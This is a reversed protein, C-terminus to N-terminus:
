KIFLFLIYIMGEIKNTNFISAIIKWKKIFIGNLNLSIGSVIPPNITILDVTKAVILFLFIVAPINLVLLISPLIYIKNKNIFDNM